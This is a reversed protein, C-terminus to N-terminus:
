QDFLLVHVLSQEPFLPKFLASARRRHYHRIGRLSWFQLSAKCPHRHSIIVQVIDVFREAGRGFMKRVVGSYTKQQTYHQVLYLMGNTFGAFVIFILFLLCSRRGFFCYM